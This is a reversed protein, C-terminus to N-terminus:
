EVRPELVHVHLRPTPTQSITSLGERLIYGRNGSALREEDQRELSAVREQWRTRLAAFRREWMKNRVDRIALKLQHIDSLKAELQQKEHQVAEFQGALTLHEARLAEHEQTLSALEQTTDELQRQVRDLDGQLQALSATQGEITQHAGTLEEALKAREEALHALQAQAQQYANALRRKEQEVAGARWLGAAAAIALVAVVVRNRMRIAM